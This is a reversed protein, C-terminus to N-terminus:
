NLDCAQSKSVLDRALGQAEDIIWEGVKNILRRAHVLTHRDYVDKCLGRWRCAARVIYRQRRGILRGRRDELFVDRNNADNGGVLDIVPRCRIYYISGNGRKGTEDM